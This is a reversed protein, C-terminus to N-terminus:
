QIGRKKMEAKAEEIEAELETSANPVDNFSMVGVILVALLYLGVAVIAWFPLFYIFLLIANNDDYESRKQLAMYWISLLAVAYGIFLQYRLLAM